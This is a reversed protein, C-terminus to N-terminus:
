AEVPEWLGDVVVFKAVGGAPIFVQARGLDVVGPSHANAYFTMRTGEEAPQLKFPPSMAPVTVRLEHHPDLM